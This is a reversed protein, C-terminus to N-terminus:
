RSRPICYEGNGSDRLSQLESRVWAKAEEPAAAFVSGDGTEAICRLLAGAVDGLHARDDQWMRLLIEYTERAGHM